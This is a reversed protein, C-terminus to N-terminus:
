INKKQGGGVNNKCAFTQGNYNMEFTYSEPAGDAGKFLEDITNHSLAPLEASTIIPVFCRM